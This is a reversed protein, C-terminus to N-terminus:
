IKNFSYFYIKLFEKNFTKAELFRKWVDGRNNMTTRWRITFGSSKKFDVGRALGNLSKNSFRGYELITKDDATWWRSGAFPFQDRWIFERFIEVIVSNRCNGYVLRGLKEKDRRGGRRCGFFGDLITLKGYLHESVINENTSPNLNIM